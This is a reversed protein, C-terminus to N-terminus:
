EGDATPALWADSTMVSLAGPLGCCIGRSPVATAAGGGAGITVSFGGVASVKGPLTGSFAALRGWDTEMELEPLAWNCIELTESAPELEASKEILELVQAEGTAGAAEQVTDSTKVGSAEPRRVVVSENVSM